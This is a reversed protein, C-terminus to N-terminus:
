FNWEGNMLDCIAPFLSKIHDPSAQLLAPARRSLRSHM